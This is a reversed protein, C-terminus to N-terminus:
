DLSQGSQAALEIIKDYEEPTLDNFYFNIPNIPENNKRVEYHLHPAMSMGTNGVLGIVDGRRVKQGPKAITKSMHAYLTKYSFGHDIIITNGYGRGSHIVDSVVGNGTAYIETGTPATFDMGTHMKLVKYFPHMRVGFPSAVRKLDKNSVPQIAPICAIMEEKRKAMEIVEDFSKSQVYVQKALKDLRQATKIVMASNSLDELYTYRDVGGMGATRYTSPIPEAEFITRYINDDRQQIDELVATIHDFKKNFLEFQLVLEENERKLGREEPTDFFLSFFIYYIVSIIISLLFYSFGQWFKKKLSSDDRVFTLLDPNFRYKHKHMIM